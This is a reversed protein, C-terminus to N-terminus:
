PTGGSQDSFFGDDFSSAFEPLKDRDAQVALLGEKTGQPWDGFEAREDHIWNDILSGVIGELLKPRGPHLKVMEHFSAETKYRRRLERWTERYISRVGTPFAAKASGLPILHTVKLKTKSEHRVIKLIRRLNQLRSSDWETSSLFQARAAAGTIATLWQDVPLGKDTDLLMQFYEMSARLPATRHGKSRRSEIREAEEILIKWDAKVEVNARKVSFVARPNQAFFAAARLLEDDEEAWATALAVQVRENAREIDDPASRGQIMRVRAELMDVRRSYRSGDSLSPAFASRAEQIAQLILDGPQGERSAHRQLEGGARFDSLFMARMQGLVSYAEELTRSDSVRVAQIARVLPLFYRWKDFVFRGREQDNAGFVWRFICETLSPHRFEFPADSSTSFDEASFEHRFEGNLETPLSGLADIGLLKAQDDLDLESLLRRVIRKTPRRIESQECVLGAFAIVSVARLFEPSGDLLAEIRRDLFLGRTAQYQAPWLGGLGQGLTLGNEFLLRIRSPDDIDSARFKQIQQVFVPADDSSIRSIAQLNVIRRDFLRRVNGVYRSQCGLLLCGNSEFLRKAWSPLAKLLNADDIVVLPRKFRLITEGAAEAHQADLAFVDRGSSVAQCAVQLLITSTGEAVPGHLLVVLSQESIAFARKSDAREVAAHVATRPSPLDGKLFRRAAEMFEETAQVEFDSVELKRLGATFENTLLSPATSAESAAMQLQVFRPDKCNLLDLYAVLNARQDQTVIGKDTWWADLLVLAIGQSLKKVGTNQRSYNEFMDDTWRPNSERLREYFKKKTGLLKGANIAIERFLKIGDPASVVKM